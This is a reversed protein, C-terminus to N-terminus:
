HQKVDDLMIKKSGERGDEDDENNQLEDIVYAVSKEAEALAQVLGINAALTGFSCTFLMKTLLLQPLERARAEKYMEVLHREVLEDVLRLQEKQEKTFEM